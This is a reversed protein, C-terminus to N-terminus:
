PAVYTINVVVGTAPAPLPLSSLAIPTTESYAGQSNYSRIVLQQGTLTPMVFSCTTPAAPLVNCKVTSDVRVEENALNPGISRTWTVSVNWDAQAATASLLLMSIAMILNKM